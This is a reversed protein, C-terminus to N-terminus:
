NYSFSAEAITGRHANMVAQKTHFSFFVHFSALNIRSKLNPPSLLTEDLLDWTTSPIMSIIYLYIGAMKSM